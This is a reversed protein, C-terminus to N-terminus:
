GEKPLPYVQSQLFYGYINKEEDVIRYMIDGNRKIDIRDIEGRLEGTVMEGIFFKQAEKPERPGFIAKLKNEIVYPSCIHGKINEADNPLLCGCDMCEKTELNYRERRM